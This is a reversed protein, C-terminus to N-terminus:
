ADPNHIRTLSVERGEESAGRTGIQRCLSALEERTHPDVRELQSSLKVLGDPREQATRSFTAVFKMTETFNHDATKALLPRLTKAVIDAASQEFRVFSDLRVTVFTRGDTEVTSGSRLLLVCRARIPDTLPPAHYAGEAYVVLRNSCDASYNAHMVRLVGRTGIQDRAHYTGDGTRTMSLNSVGMLNWVNVVVEPHETLFNFVKPDCPLVRTPMRRYITADRVVYQTLRQDQRSLSSWPIARRAEDEAGRSSTAELPDAAACPAPASCAGLAVLACCLGRVVRGAARGAGRPACAYRCLAM